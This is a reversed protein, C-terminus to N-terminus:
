MGGKIIKEYEGITAYGKASVSHQTVIGANARRADFVVGTKSKIAREKEARARLEKELASRMVNAPPKQGTWLEFQAMGQYLLMGLGDVVQCGAAAADRLLRTRLPAYVIDMVVKYSSLMEAPAVTRDVYPEMGVSTTNILVDAQITDIEGLPVFRADLWEALTKGSEETRNVIIVEAGSERLGYGVAKAAGGAGVVVVRSGAIAIKEALAKNAGVWDTNVGSVTVKDEHPDHRLVLTNVAGIREAVPGIEDVYPMITEKHPVTVSIGKFGLARLGALGRGPDITKLPVYVANMGLASFAANHM